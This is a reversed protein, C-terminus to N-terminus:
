VVFAGPPTINAESAEFFPYCALMLSDARDDSGGPPKEIKTTFNSQKERLSKLELTLDYVGDEPLLLDGRNIWQRLSNYAGIKMTRFKFEFPDLGRGRMQETAFYSEPCYDIVLMDTEFAHYLRAIDEVVFADTGYEYSYQALLRVKRDLENFSVVTIVTKSVSMGFDVGMSITEYSDKEFRLGDPHLTVGSDQIADVKAPSLFLDVSSTFEAEYEQFYNNLTGKAEAEAKLTNLERELAEETMAARGFWVRNYRHILRRDEPDFLDYFAGGIGRPTTTLIVKGKTFAVTPEVKEELFHEDELFAAEDVYVVSLSYGRVADTAPLCLIECGNKFKLRSKNSGKRAIQSTFFKKAKGKTLQEVVRDGNFMLNKIDNLVKQSQEETSSVIAILTNGEKKPKRNYFSNWLAHVALATTKGCQRPTVAAMFREEEMKRLFVSQWEFPELGLFFKAFVFVNDRASEPTLQEVSLQEKLFLRDEETIEYKNM